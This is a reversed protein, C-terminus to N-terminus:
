EMVERGAVAVLAVAGRWLGPYTRPAAAINPGGAWRLLALVLNRCAACVEPDAGTRISCRDGLGHRGGRGGPRGWRPRAWRSHFPPADDPRWIHEGETSSAGRHRIGRAAPRTGLGIGRGM